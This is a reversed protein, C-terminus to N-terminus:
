FEIINVGKELAEKSKTTTKVDQNTQRHFTDAVCWGRLLHTTKKTISKPLDAGLKELL